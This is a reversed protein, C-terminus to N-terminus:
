LAESGPLGRARMAAATVDSVREEEPGLKTENDWVLVWGHGRLFRARLAVGPTKAVIDAAACPGLHHM